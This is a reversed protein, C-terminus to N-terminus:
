GLYKQELRQRTEDKQRLLALDYRLRKEFVGADGERGQSQLLANVTRSTTHLVLQALNSAIYESEVGFAFPHVRM